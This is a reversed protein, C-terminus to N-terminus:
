SGTRAGGRRRSRPERGSTGDPRRRALGRRARPGGRPGRPNLMTGHPRAPDAPLPPGDDSTPPCPSSEPDGFKVAREVLSGRAMRTAAQLLRHAYPQTAGWSGEPPPIRGARVADDLAFASEWAERVERPEPPSGERLGPPVPLGRERLRDRLPRAPTSEHYAKIGRLISRRVDRGLRRGLPTLPGAYPFPPPRGEYAIVVADTSTGTAPAPGERLDYEQLAAVKAETVMKVLEVPAGGCPLGRLGVLINITGVRSANRIGATVALLYDKRRVVVAKRVDVATLLGVVRHWGMRREFARYFTAVDHHFDFPVQHNIVRTARRLWGGRWPASSLVSFPGQLGIFGKGRILRM